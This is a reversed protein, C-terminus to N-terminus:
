PAPCCSRSSKSLGVFGFVIRSQRRSTPSDFAAVTPTYPMDAFAMGTEDDADQGDHQIEDAM